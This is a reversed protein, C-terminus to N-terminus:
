SRRSDRWRRIDEHFDLHNLKAFQEQDAITLQSRMYASKQRLFRSKLHSLTLGYERTTYSPDISRMVNYFDCSLFDLSVFYSRACHAVFLAQELAPVGRMALLIQSFLYEVDEEPQLVFKALALRMEACNRNTFSYREKWRTPFTDEAPVSHMRDRAWNCTKIAASWLQYVTLGLVLLVAVVLEISREGTGVEQTKSAPANPNEPETSHTAPAAAVEPETSNEAPQAPPDPKVQEPSLRTKANEASFKPPTNPTSTKFAPEEVPPTPDSEKKCGGEIQPLDLVRQPLEVGGILHFVARPISSWDAFEIPPTHRVSCLITASKISKSRRGIEPLEACRACVLLALCLAATSSM